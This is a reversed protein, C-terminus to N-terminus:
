GNAQGGQIPHGHEDLAALGFPTLMVRADTWAPWRHADAQVQAPRAFSLNPYNTRREPRPRAPRSANGNAPM